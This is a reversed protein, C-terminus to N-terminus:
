LISCVINRMARFSCVIRSYQYQFFSLSYVWCRSPQFYCCCLLIKWRSVEAFMKFIKTRHLRRRKITEILIKAEIKSTMDAAIKSIILHIVCAPLSRAQRAMYSFKLWSFAWNFSLSCNYYTLLSSVRWIQLWRSISRRQVITLLLTNLIHIKTWKKIKLIRKCTYLM